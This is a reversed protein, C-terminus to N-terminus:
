DEKLNEDWRDSDQTEEELRQFAQEGLFKSYLAEERKVAAATAQKAVEKNWAVRVIFTADDLICTDDVSSHELVQDAVQKIVSETYESAHANAGIGSEEM